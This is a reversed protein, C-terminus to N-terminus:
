VLGFILYLGSCVLLRFAISVHSSPRLRIGTRSDRVSWFGFPLQSSWYEDVELGVVIDWVRWWGFPLQSMETEIDIGHM